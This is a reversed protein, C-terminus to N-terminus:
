APGQIVVFEAGDPVATVAALDSSLSATACSLGTIDQHALHYGVVAFQLRGSEQMTLIVVAAFVM